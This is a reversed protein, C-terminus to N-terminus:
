VLTAIFWSIFGFAFIFRAANIRTAISLKAKPRSLYLSMKLMKEIEKARKLASHAFDGCREGIVCFAITLVMGAFCIFIPHKADKLAQLLAGNAALYVTLQGFLLTANLREEAAVEKYESMYKDEDEM